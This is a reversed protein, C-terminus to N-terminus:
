NLTQSINGLGPTAPGELEEIITGIGLTNHKSSISAGSDLKNTKLASTANMLM